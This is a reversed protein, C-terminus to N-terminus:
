EQGTIAVLGQGRQSPGLREDRDPVRGDLAQLEEEGLGDPVGRGDVRPPQLHEPGVGRHRRVRAAHQDDVLGAVALLAGLRRVHRELVQAGDARAGVPNDRHGAQPGVLADVIRQM